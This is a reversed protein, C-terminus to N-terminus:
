DIEIAVKGSPDLTVPFCAISAGPRGVGEGTRMDFSWSHLPCTITAGSVPGDALPGGRHPCRNDVAYLSGEFQYLAIPRGNVTLSVGLGNDLDEPKDVLHKAM